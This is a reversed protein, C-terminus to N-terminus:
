GRLGDKMLGFLHFDSPALDPSFPPHPIVSWGINVIHEVTNLSTQPQANDHQLLYELTVVIMELAIFGINLEM